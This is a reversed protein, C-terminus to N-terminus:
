ADRRARQFAPCRSATRRKRSSWRRPYVPLLGVTARSAWRRRWAYALARPRPPRPLGQWGHGLRCGAVKGGAPRGPQDQPPWLPHILALGGSEGLQLGLMRLHGGGDGSGLANGLEHALALGVLHLGPQGPRRVIGECGQLPKRLPDVLVILGDFGPDGQGSTVARRLALNVAQLPGFALPKATGFQIQELLAKEQRRLVPAIAAGSDRPEVMLVVNGHRCPDSLM